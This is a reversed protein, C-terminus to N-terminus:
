AEEFRSEPYFSFWSVCLEISIPLFSFARLPIPVSNISSSSSSFLTWLRGYNERLTVGEEQECGERLRKGRAVGVTKGDGIRACENPPSNHTPASRLRRHGSIVPRGERRSLRPSQARGGGTERRKNNRTRGGRSHILVFRPDSTARLPFTHDLFCLPFRERVGGIPFICLALM